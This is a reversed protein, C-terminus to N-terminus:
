GWETILLWLGMQRIAYLMGRSLYETLPSIEKAQYEHVKM